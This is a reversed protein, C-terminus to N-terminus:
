KLTNQFVPKPQISIKTQLTLMQFALQAHAVANKKSKTRLLNRLPNLFIIIWKFKRVLWIYEYATAFKRCTEPVRQVIKAVFSFCPKLKKGMIVDDFPFMKRTVPRKHPSTVPGPSTGACLGTVRLKPTKTSRPRFLRNLLCGRPRHNSVGNNDYHRWHLASFHSFDITTHLFQNIYYSLDIGGDAM